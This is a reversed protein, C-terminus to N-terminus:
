RGTSKDPIRFGLNAIKSTITALYARAETINKGTRLNYLLYSNFNEQAQTLMDAKYFKKGFKIYLKSNERTIPLDEARPYIISALYFATGIKYYLNTLSGDIAIARAYEDAAKTFDNPKFGAITYADGLYVHARPDKPNLTTVKELLSISQMVYESANSNLKASDAMLKAAEEKKKASDAKLKNPDGKPAKPAGTTIQAAQDDLKAAEETAKDADVEKSVVGAKISAAKDVKAAALNYMVDVDRQNLNYARQYSMIASNLLNMDIKKKDKFAQKYYANGLAYHYAFEAPELKVALEYEKAADPYKKKEYSVNGLKFHLDAYTGIKNVTDAEKDIKAAEELKKQAQAAKKDKLLQVAEDVLNGAAPEIALIKQFKAVALYFDGEKLAVKGEDLTKSAYTPNVISIAKLYSNIAKKIEGQKMFVNGIGRFGQWFSPNLRVCMYYEEYASKYNGKSFYTDGVRLHRGEFKPVKVPYAPDYKVPEEKKASHGEEAAYTNGATLSASSCIFLGLLATVTIKKM